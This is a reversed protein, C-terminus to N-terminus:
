RSASSGNASGLTAIWEETRRRLEVRDFQEPLVASIVAVSDAGAKLIDNVNSLQIGGIACLPKKTFSRLRTLGELGVVPDPKEKSTTAYIPGISLYEVSEEDGRMVQQRSHTSLGMVEDGIIKRAAVPPIDEQGVHLATGLLQAFDARDNLVFLVGAENCIENISRAEDFHAQTWAAKHRYQLIKAGAEILVETALLVPYERTRLVTTDLIPYFRPLQFPIPM